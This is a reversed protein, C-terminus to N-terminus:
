GRDEDLVRVLTTVFGGFVDAPLTLPPTLTLTRGDAGGTLVMYGAGLLHNMARLASEKSRLEIGFMMARSRIGNVKPHSRLPGLLEACREGRERVESLFVPTLKDICAKAMACAAPTGAHTSTHIISGGHQGWPAMAEESGVIASIPAGGGLGKGFAIVDPTLGNAICLSIEGSRGMGTWVEDALLMAGTRLRFAGLMSYFSRPAEVVGGRGLVPEFLVSGPGEASDSSWRQLSEFLPGLDAESRPTPFFTVFSGLQSGFPERFAPAFGCAALPGHSLGHYAGTFAAIRPGVSLAGTKIAATVADAGSQGLLVRARPKPYLSALSECLEVKARSAYVDGLGMPLVQFQATYREILDRPSHGFTLAGFGAVLDVYAKGDVDFVTWGDGRELIVPFSPSAAIEQRAERRAPFSPCEVAELRAFWNESHARDSRFM